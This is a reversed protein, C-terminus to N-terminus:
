IWRKVNTKRSKTSGDLLHSSKLLKKDNITHACQNDYWYRCSNIWTGCIEISFKWLDWKKTNRYYKVRHKTAPLNILQCVECFGYRRPLIEYYRKWWFYKIYESPHADLFKIYEVLKEVSEFDGVDIFSHPPAYNSYNSGGFVIPVINRRLSNYFKETVYNSCLANEFAAYFKYNKEINASCSTNRYNCRFTRLLNQLKVPM